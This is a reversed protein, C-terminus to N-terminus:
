RISAIESILISDPIKTKEGLFNVRLQGQRQRWIWSVHVKALKRISPAIVKRVRMSTRKLHM